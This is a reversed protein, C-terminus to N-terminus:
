AISVEVPAVQAISVEAVSAEFAFVRKEALWTIAALQEAVAISVIAASTVQLGLAIGMLKAKTAVTAEIAIALTRMIVTVTLATLATLTFLLAQMVLVVALGWRRLGDLRWELFGM